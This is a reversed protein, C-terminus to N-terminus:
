APRPILRHLDQQERQLAPGDSVPFHHTRPRKKMEKAIREGAKRAARSQRRWVRSRCNNEVPIGADHQLRAARLQSRPMEFCLGSAQM